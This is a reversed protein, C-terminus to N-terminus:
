QPTKRTQLEAQIPAKQTVRSSLQPPFFTFHGNFFIGLAVMALAGLKDSNKDM